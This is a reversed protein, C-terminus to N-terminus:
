KGSDRIKSLKFINRYWNFPFSLTILLAMVGIAYTPYKFQRAPSLEGLPFSKLDPAYISFNIKPPSYKSIEASFVSNDIEQAKEIFDTQFTIAQEITEFKENGVFTHEWKSPESFATFAAYLGLTIAIASGIIFGAWKWVLHQKEM